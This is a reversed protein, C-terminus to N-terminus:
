LLALLKNTLDEKTNKSGTLDHIKVGNKYIRITPFGLVNSQTVIDTNKEYDVEAFKVNEFRKDDPLAEVVPRQEACKSCWTAHFFILSVGDEVTKNFDELSNIERLNKKSEVQNKSCSMVGLALVTIFLINRM